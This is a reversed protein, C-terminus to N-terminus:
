APGEAVPLHAEFRLGAGPESAVLFTGGLMEVRERMGSLGFGSTRATLDAGRGDDQVSLMVEDGATSRGRRLSIELHGAGAHRSCNTLGEQILRYLALNLQEGLGDLGGGFALSFQVGPLRARWQDVLSEVAAALGLEDLGVPRLRRIMGSVAAHVHDVSQIIANVARSTAAADPAGDRIAVADLKIANLYQGLEDHLERALHKREDEEARIHRQTLERNVALASALRAEAQQRAALELRTQKHRRGSFWMLGLTLVIFTVPLEDIQFLEWKRTRAYLWEDLELYSTAFISLLTLGIVVAVDRIMGRSLSRQPLPLTAFKPM